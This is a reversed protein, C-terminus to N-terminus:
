NDAVKPQQTEAVCLIIAMCFYCNLQPTKKWTQKCSTLFYEINERAITKSLKWKYVFQSFFSFEYVRQQEM